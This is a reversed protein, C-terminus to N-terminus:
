KKERVTASVNHNGLAGIDRFEEPLQITAKFTSTGAVADTFDVTVQIDRERLGSLSEAPGRLIVTLKENILEVEMGEPVNVARINEVVFEATTLGTFTIEVTAEAINSLNTVGEPLNIPFTLTQSKDVQSLNIKGLIIADGLEALVAEGGALRISGPTVEVTTNEETAGGAYIVEVLVPVERVQQIKVDLHVQEVNTVIQNANVPNGEEDCLTYRYDQSISERQESLDVEIVAKVIQDAVSAPGTITITNYDLVHNERDSLYGEPASGIWRVEVPIEKNSRRYEVDIYVISQYEVTFSNSAVDNPYVITYPLAIHEGPEYIKTLDAKLTINNSNLKNLESRPGYLKLTATIDDIDSTIMLGRENLVTEGEMVVDVGNFTNTDEQSVNYVVYLWLSFAIAVSLAIATFKNKM